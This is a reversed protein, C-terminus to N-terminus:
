AVSIMSGTHRGPVESHDSPLSLKLSLSSTPHDVVMNLNLNLDSPHILNAPQGITLNDVSEPVVTFASAPMMAPPQSQTKNSEQEEEM